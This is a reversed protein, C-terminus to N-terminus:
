TIASILAVPEKRAILKAWFSSGQTPMNPFNILTKRLGCTGRLTFTVTCRLMGEDLKFDGVLAAM